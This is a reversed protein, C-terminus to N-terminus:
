TRPRTTERSEEPKGMAGGAASSIAGVVLGIFGAIAATSVASSVDEAVIKAEQEAKQTLQEVEQKSQQFQNVWRNATQRAESQSMDTEEAIANALTKRDADSILSDAKSFIRDINEDLQEPNRLTGQALERAEQKFNQIIDSQGLQQQAADGLEPAVASIGQGALSLAQGAVQGTVGIISGVTTTLLYFSFITFLCWALLGHLIGSTREPIDSLRAAVWGGAILSIIISLLYWIIAGIGLSQPVANQEMPDVAGIGIGLGLLNLALNTVLAIVFGAFIAGWSIRKFYFYDKEIRERPENPYAM